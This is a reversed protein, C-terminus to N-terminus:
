SGKGRRGGVLGGTESERFRGRREKAGGGHKGGRGGVRIKLDGEKGISCGLRRRTGRGTRRKDRRGIGRKM